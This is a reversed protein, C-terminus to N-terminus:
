NLRSVLYALGGLAGLALSGVYAMVGRLIWRESRDCSAM